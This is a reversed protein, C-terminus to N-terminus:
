SGGGRRIKWLVGTGPRPELRGDKAALVGFDVVYLADGSADFRAALPRELGGQELLSAPGSKDGRNVAFDYSVGTELNVRVVKFGVPALVKGVAPAQDGFVAVFAQGVYGFRSSRSIDFGDASAHVPLYAVPKPPEGPHPEILNALKPGFPPAYRDQAVPRGESYDPWGYWAGREVRFLSDAAGFVPRSGREDAGNDTVFLQGRADFALGFPNRFGWAVLELPGGEPRVRFIAGTCPLKGAILQGPTSPTGYPLYAGTVVRPKDPRLPSESEFNVGRLRVDRCPVDHVEPHRKLWGFDANDTGVVGSNTATGQGFYLWGDPGIAPGNTHHDALGPLGEVLATKDGWPTIKLIRGGERQGGESVYFNGAHFVVGTWPGNNGTALTRVSGDRELRLLRATTFAEGSSYGAEVVHVAGGDDLAVGTPFTLGRLVPEIAYGAPLLVDSPVIVRGRTRDIEGGGSSGRLSFCGTLAALSAGVAV